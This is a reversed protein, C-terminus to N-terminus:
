RKDLKGISENYVNGWGGCCFELDHYHLKVKPNSQGSNVM